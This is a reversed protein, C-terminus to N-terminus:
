PPIKKLAYVSAQKIKQIIPKLIRTWTPWFVKPQFTGAVGNIIQRDNTNLHYNKSIWKLFKSAHNKQSQDKNNKIIQIYDYLPPTKSSHQFFDSKDNCNPFFSYNSSSFIKAIKENKSIRELPLNSGIHQWHDTKKFSYTDISKDDIKLYRPKCYWRIHWIVHDLKFLDSTFQSYGYIMYRNDASGYKNLRNIFNEISENFGFVDTDPFPPISFNSIKQVKKHLKTIQHGYGKTNFRNILLIAKFYKELSHLALWFFDNYFGIFFAHRSLLYNEDATTVLTKLAFSNIDPTLDDIM